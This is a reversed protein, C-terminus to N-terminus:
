SQEQLIVLLKWCQAAAMVRDKLFKKKFKANESRTVFLVSQVCAGFKQVYSPM